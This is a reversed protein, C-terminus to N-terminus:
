GYSDVGNKFDPSTAKRHSDRGNILYCETPELSARGIMSFDEVCQSSDKKFAVTRGHITSVEIVM